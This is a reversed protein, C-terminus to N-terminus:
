SSMWAFIYLDSPLRDPGGQLFFANAYIHNSFGLMAALSRTFDGAVTGLNESSLQLASM